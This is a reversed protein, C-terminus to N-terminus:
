KNTYAIADAKKAHATQRHLSSATEKKTFIQYGLFEANTCVPERGGEIFEAAKTEHKICFHHALRFVLQKLKDQCDRSEHVKHIAFPGQLAFNNDFASDYMEIWSNKSM